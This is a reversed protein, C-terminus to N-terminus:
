LSVAQRQLVENGLCRAATDGCEHKFSRRIRGVTRVRTRFDMKTSLFFDRAESKASCGEYSRIRSSLSCCLKGRQHSWITRRRIVAQLRGVFVNVRLLEVCALRLKRHRKAQWDPSQVNPNGDIVTEKPCSDIEIEVSHRSSILYDHGNM